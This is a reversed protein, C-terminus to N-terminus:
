PDFLNIIFDKINLDAIGISPNCTHTVWQNILRKGVVTAVGENLRMWQFLGRNDGIEHVNARQRPQYYDIRIASGM